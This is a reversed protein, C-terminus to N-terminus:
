ALDESCVECNTIVLRERGDSKHARREDRGNDPRAAPEETTEGAPIPRHDRTGDNSAASKEQVHDYIKQKIEKNQYLDEWNEPVQVYFAVNSKERTIKQGDALRLFVTEGDIKVVQAYLRHITKATDCAGTTMAYRM